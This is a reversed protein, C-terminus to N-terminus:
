FILCPIGLIIKLLNIILEFSFNLIFSNERWRERERERELGGRFQLLIRCIIVDFAMDIEFM